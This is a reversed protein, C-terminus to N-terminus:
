CVWGSFKGEWKKAALSQSSFIVIQRKVFLLFETTVFNKFM